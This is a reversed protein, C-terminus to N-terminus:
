STDHETSLNSNGNGNRELALALTPHEGDLELEKKPGAMIVKMSRSPGALDSGGLNPHGPRGICIHLVLAATFAIESLKMTADEDKLLDIVVTCSGSRWGHPVQFGRDADRSFRMPASSKDGETIM